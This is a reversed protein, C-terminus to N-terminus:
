RLMLRISSTFTMKEARGLTKQHGVGFHLLSGLRYHLQPDLDEGALVARLLVADRFREFVLPDLHPIHPLRNRLQEFLAPRRHRELELPAFASLARGSGSIDKAEGLIFKTARSRWCSMEPHTEILDPPKCQVLSPATPNWRESSHCIPPQHRLREAADLFPESHGARGQSAEDRPEELM